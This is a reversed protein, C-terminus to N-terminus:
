SLFKAVIAQAQESRGATQLVEVLQNVLAGAEDLQRRMSAAELASELAWVADDTLGQDAYVSGAQTFLAQAEALQGLVGLAKAAEVAQFAGEITTLQGDANALAAARLGLVRADRLAAAREEREALKGEFRDLDVRPLEDGRAAVEGGRGLAVAPSIWAELVKLMGEPHAEGAVLLPWAQAFREMAVAPDETLHAQEALAFGAGTLDGADELQRAQEELSLPQEDSTATATQSSSATPTSDVDPSVASAAPAAVTRQPGQAAALKRAYGDNGSRADFAAALPTATTVAWDLLEQATSAVPFSIADGLRDPNAVLGSIVNLAFHFISGPDGKKALGLGGESRLVALAEEFRGSRALLTFEDSSRTVDGDAAARTARYLALHEAVGEADGSELCALALSLHSSSPERNCGQGENAAIKAAEAFRQKRILRDIKATVQCPECIFPDDGFAQLAEFHEDAAEEDWLSEAWMYEAREVAAMGHGALQFRRRMDQLFADGQARTIQPFQCLDEAVWKFEWFMTRQDIEDFYEPHTDWLRLVRSFLAFVQPSRDGFEHSEIQSLLAEPLLRELGAAEVERTLQESAVIRAAGNPMREIKTIRTRFEHENM